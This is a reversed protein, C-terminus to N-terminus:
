VDTRTDERERERERQTYTHTYYAYKHLLWICIIRGRAADRISKCYKCMCIAKLWLSPKHSLSHCSCPLHQPTPPVLLTIRCPTLRALLEYNFKCTEGSQIPRFAGSVCAEGGQKLLMISLHTRPDLTAARAPQMCHAENVRLQLMFTVYILLSCVCVRM